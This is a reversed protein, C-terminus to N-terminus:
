ACPPPGHLPPAHEQRAAPAPDDCVVFWRNLRSAPLWWGLAVLGACGIGAWPSIGSLLLGLIYLGISAVGKRGTAIHYFMAQRSQGKSHRIVRQLWAYAFAPLLLSALYVQTAAVGFHQVGLYATTFPVLSLAFLLAINAWLLSNTVQRAHSFLRHHNVWYIAVYAYSLVYALFIPWLRGLAALGAQTPAHLDLVMVTIIIAIVGDSFAEVRNVGVRGESGPSAETAPPTPTQM